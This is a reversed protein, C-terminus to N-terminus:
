ARNMRAFAASIKREAEKLKRFTEAGLLSLCFNFYSRVQFPFLKIAELFAIRGKHVDGALCYMIGIDVYQERYYSLPYDRYKAAMIETGKTLAELNTSIKNQHIRYKFLPERVCEFLFEKSIRIWLDYDQSCPLSEDFLGTRELCERKLLVSSTSGVCNAVLLDKSLNGRKKPVYEGLIRGTSSSVDVCGTSVCGVEKPSALLVKMQKALKEPLWEDDDDLFAIYDGTSNLIGTNRAASGGKRTEHRIFKIRDDHFSAVVEFSNEASADDVVILEFDQFTQNL